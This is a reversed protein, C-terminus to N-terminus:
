NYYTATFEENMSKCDYEYEVSAGTSSSIQSSEKLEEKRVKSSVKNLEVM